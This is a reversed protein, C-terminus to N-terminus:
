CWQFLAAALWCVQDWCKLYLGLYMTLWWELQGPGPVRGSQWAILCLPVFVAWLLNNPVVAQYCVTWLVPV